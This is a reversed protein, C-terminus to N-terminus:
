SQPFPRSFSDPNIRARTKRRNMAVMMASSGSQKTNLGASAAFPSKAASANALPDAMSRAQRPTGNFQGHPDVQRLAVVIQDPLVAGRKGAVVLRDAPSPREAPGVVPMRLQVVVSSDEITQSLGATAPTGPVM